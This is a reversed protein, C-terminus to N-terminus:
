EIAKPDFSEIQRWVPNNPSPSYMIFLVDGPEAMRLGAMVAQEEGPVVSIRDRAIGEGILAHCLREAVETTVARAVTSERCIFHDFHGAVTHAIADLHAQNRDRPSTFVCIRRGKDAMKGVMRGIAAFAGPNHAFDVVVKFPHKDYINIRGPINEHSCEFTGLATRIEGITRGMSYAMAAAFLANEVNHQAAGGLAAPLATIKMVPMRKGNDHLVLSRRKGKGELVMARGGKEIHAHIHSNDDQASVLCLNKATTRAAMALCLPDDANLVATDTAAAVIVSKADAMQEITDIGIRGLHDTSVNLVAGVDCSRTGLGRRILGGHAVELVAVETRPNKLVMEAGAWGAQDGKVMLRGDISVGMTSCLGVCLGASRHIHSLMHSTTTKGNTGTIAAIPVRSPAGPPYLLDLVAGAVDRAKGEAVMYPRLSPSAALERIAGSGDLYSRAIDRLKIDVGAVQLGLVAAAQLALERNDPHIEDTVDLTSGGFQIADTRRLSIREGAAPVSGASYGKEALMGVAVDDLALRMLPSTLGDGRRPDRNVEDILAAATRRGDGTIAGPMRKVAAILKGGVVLVRHDDGAILKEVVVPGGGAGLREFMARVDQETNLAVAMDPAMAPRDLKLTVPYGMRQAVAVAGDADAALLQPVVRLGASILLRATVVHSSVIDAALRSQRDPMSQALRRQFRGQGLQVIRTAPDMPSWPIDRAEAARVIAASTPDLGLSWAQGIFNRIAAGADFGQRLATNRLADPPILALLLSCAPDFALRAVGMIRYECFIDYSDPRRSAAAKAFGVQFGALCQIELVIEAVIGALSVGGEGSASVLLRSARTKSGFRARLGPLHAALPELFDFVSKESRWDSSVDPEFRVRLVPVPGHINPGLFVSLVRAKM